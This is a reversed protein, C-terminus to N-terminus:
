PGGIRDLIALHDALALKPDLRPWANYRKFGEVLVLDVDGCYAILERPESYTVSIVSGNSIIFAATDRALIVPSAGADRFRQTDGRHLDHIEHHTHKIAAVREGRAVFHRVLEVIATTKGSGSEGAFAAVRM